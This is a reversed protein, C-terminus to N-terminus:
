IIEIKFPYSFIIKLKEESTLNKCEPMTRIKDAFKYIEEINAIIAKKTEAMKRRISFSRAGLLVLYLTLIHPQPIQGKVPYKVKGTSLFQRPVFGNIRDLPM